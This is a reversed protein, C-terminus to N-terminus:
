RSFTGEPGTFSLEQERNGDFFAPISPLNLERSFAKEGRNRDSATQITNKASSSTDREGPMRPMVQSTRRRPLLDFGFWPSPSDSSMSFWSHGVECGSATALLLAVLLCRMAPCFSPLPRRM